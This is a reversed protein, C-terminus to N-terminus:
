PRGASRATSGCPQAAEDVYAGRARRETHKLRATRRDEEAPGDSGAPRARPRAARNPKSM